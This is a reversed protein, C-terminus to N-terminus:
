LLVEIKATLASNAFVTETSGKDDTVGEYARGDSLHIKYGVHELPKGTQSNTLVFHQDHSGAQASDIELSLSSPKDMYVRQTMGNDDSVGEWEKGCASRIIYAANPLANDHEDVLRFQENFSNADSSALNVAPLNVRPVAAGAGGPFAHTAAKAVFAGTTGQEIGGASYRAYSGGGNIEVSQKGGIRVNDGMISIDLKALVNIANSLAHIDIDGAAAVMKMGAHHVFLRFTERVSVFLSGGATLSLHKGTTLATHEDSSIHTSQTTSTDIGAPSALVLQPTVLEPFPDDKKVGTGKINDNQGQLDGAVEDQQGAEQAGHQQALKALSAIRDRATTLRQVTESMDKVPGRAGPRAETTILLGLGARIVGWADTFLHFGRGQADKRGANDELRTINGLTLQSNAADSKFQAQIENQTDDFVLHNSLGGAHNGTEHTLERSRFGTLAQQDPLQWPPMKEANYVGSIIMPRDPSGGLWFVIVESGVRPLGKFGSEGGAWPSAVRLWTSSREDFEGSRDWHFQVCVRGYQDTHQSGKGEPGVVIATQMGLIQTDMSNFSRGPLWLVTKRSCQLRNTYSSPTAANLYNNTAVHHVSLILYENHSTDGASSVLPLDFHCSLRLWRGPQLYTSNGEAEVYKASAEIEEMRRRALKDGDDRNKFGYSGVYEYSEIPLVDGQQNATPIGVGVPRPAKFDFSSLSISSQALKRIPSWNRIGQEDVSGGQSQYPVEPSGDIPAAQTSDDSIILKHGSETHEYWYHYGSSEWRRHLYNHDSENYQFADSMEMDEGTVRWDWDAHAKYDDFVSETQQFITQNHYIASDQRLTLYHLWPGLIAEYTVVNGDTKVMRFAFVYGTFYRLSGDGRVLAVCILKGQLHKLAINANDSLLEVTYAYDRSLSEVADLRNVLLQCEPGDDNPFSIRLIRNHQRGQILGQLFERTDFEDFSDAM